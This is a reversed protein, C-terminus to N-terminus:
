FRFVAKAKWGWVWSICLFLIIWIKKKWGGGGMNNWGQIVKKQLFINQLIILGCQVGDVKIANLVSM